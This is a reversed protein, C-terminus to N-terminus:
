RVATLSDHTTQAFAERHLDPRLYVISTCLKTEKQDYIEYTPADSARKKEFDLVISVPAGLAKSWCVGELVRQSGRLKLVSGLDVPALVPILGQMALDIQEKLNQFSIQLQVIAQGQWASVRTDAGRKSENWGKERATPPNSPSKGPAALYSLLNDYAGFLRPKHLRMQKRVEAIIAPLGTSTKYVYHDAREVGKLVTDVNRAVSIMIVRTGEGAERLEDVIDFGSQDFPDAPYLNIDILSVAYHRESVYKLASEKAYAKDVIFGDIAAIEALSNCYDVTDDVVLIRQAPM